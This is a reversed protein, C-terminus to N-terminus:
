ALFTSVWVLYVKNWTILANSYTIPEKYTNIGGNDRSVSENVEMVVEIIYNISGNTITLANALQM